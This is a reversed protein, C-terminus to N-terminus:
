CGGEGDPVVVEADGGAAGGGFGAQSRAGYASVWTRADGNVLNGQGLTPPICSPRMM